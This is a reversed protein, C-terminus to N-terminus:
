CSGHVKSLVIRLMPLNNNCLVLCTRVCACSIGSHAPWVPCSCVRLDLHHQPLLRCEARRRWFTSVAASTAFRRECVVRRRKPQVTLRAGGVGNINQMKGVREVTCMECKTSNIALFVLVFTGSSVKVLCHAQPLSRSLHRAVRKVDRANITKSTQFKILPIGFCCSLYNWEGGM